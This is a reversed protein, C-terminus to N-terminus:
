QPICNYLWSAQDVAFSWQSIDDSGDEGWHLAAHIMFSRAMYMITQIAREAEANQHQAGVGSFSQMQRGEKCSDCFAEATFIGNDSHYHKVHARSTEWLWDEFRMKANVTEGAGLSVQNQIHIYKSSAGQFNNQWSM